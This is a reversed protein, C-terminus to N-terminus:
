RKRLYFYANFACLLIAAILVATRSVEIYIIKELYHTIFSGQYTKSPDEMSRFFIELYTLPCYWNLTQIAVAFALGSIHFIKILGYRVGWFGGIFLFVIWLFHILVVFDALLGYSM